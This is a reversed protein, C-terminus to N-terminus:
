PCYQLHELKKGVLTKYGVLKFGLKLYLKKASPNDEDVLLGLTQNQKHALEDILYRLMKSGLGMGQHTECVSICDLYIEGAQTEEEPKFDTQFHAEIYDKVPQRLEILHAGNYLCAAVAVKGDIEGVWCNEYAYQNGKKVTFVNLFAIAKEKNKEKIFAYLIEEMALFLLDAIAPADQLTAARINFQQNSM